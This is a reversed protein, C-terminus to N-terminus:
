IYKKTNIKSKERFVHMDSVKLGGLRPSKLRAWQSFLQSRPNLSLKSFSTRSAFGFLVSSMRPPDCFFLDKSNSDKTIPYPDARVCSKKRIRSSGIDVFM